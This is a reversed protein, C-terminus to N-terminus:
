SAGGANHERMARDWAEDDSEGEHDTIVAMADPNAVRAAAAADIEARTRVVLDRMLGPKMRSVDAPKRLDESRM